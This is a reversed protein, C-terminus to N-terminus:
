KVKKVGNTDLSQDLLAKITEVRTAFQQQHQYDKIRRLRSPELLMHIAKPKEPDVPTTAKM